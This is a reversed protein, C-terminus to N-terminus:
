KKNCPQVRIAIILREKDKTQYRTIIPFFKGCCTTYEVEGMM